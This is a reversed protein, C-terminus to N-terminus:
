WGIREGQPRWEDGALRWGWAEPSAPEDGDPGALHARGSAVAASLLERFRRTPEGAAQHQRQAAAAEGM